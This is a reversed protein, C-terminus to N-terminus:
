RPDINKAFIDVTLWNYSTEQFIFPKLICHIKKSPPDHPTSNHFNQKQLTKLTRFPNQLNFHCFSFMHLSCAIRWFILSSCNLRSREICWRYKAKFANGQLLNGFERTPVRFVLLCRLFSYTSLCGWRWFPWGYQFCKSTEWRHAQVAKSFNRIGIYIECCCLLANELVYLCFCCVYLSTKVCLYVFM